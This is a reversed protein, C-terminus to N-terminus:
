YGSAEKFSVSLGGGSTFFETALGPTDLLERVFPPPAGIEALSLEPVEERALYVYHALGDEVPLVDFAMRRRSCTILVRGPEVEDADLREALEATIWYVSREQGRLSIEIRGQDAILCPTELEDLSGPM